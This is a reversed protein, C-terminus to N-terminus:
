RAGTRPKAAPKSVRKRPPHLTEGRECMAVFDRVLRARTEPKKAHHIRFLMAYRNASDLQDHFARAKDNAALAAEFDPPITATRQGSYAADWRGDRKAAEIAALGPPHMKGAAILAEAKACNIKSWISKPGRPTFRQLWWADDLGRKQADIWGWTLALDLAEAYTISQHESDAKAIRVWLGSSKAHHKALWANWARPTAFPVSEDAADKAAASKSRANM